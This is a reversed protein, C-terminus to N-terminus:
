FTYDTDTDTKTRTNINQLIHCKEPFIRSTENFRLALCNQFNWIPISYTNIIDGLDIVKM